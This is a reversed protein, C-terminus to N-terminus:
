PTPPLASAEPRQRGEASRWKLDDKAAFAAEGHSVLTILLEALAARASGKDFSNGNRQLERWTENFSIELM